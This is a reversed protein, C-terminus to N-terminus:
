REGLLATIEIDRTLRNELLQIIQWAICTCLDSKDSEIASHMKIIDGLTETLRVLYSNQFDITLLIKLM